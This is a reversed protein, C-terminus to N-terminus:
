ILVNFCDSFFFGFRGNRKVCCVQVWHDTGSCCGQVAARWGRWGRDGFVYFRRGLLLSCRDVVTVNRMYTRVSIVAKTKFCVFLTRWIDFFFSRVRDRCAEIDVVFTNHNMNIANGLKLSFHSQWQFITSHQKWNLFAAVLPLFLWPCAEMRCRNYLSLSFSIILRKRVFPCMQSILPWCPPSFFTCLFGTGFGWFEPVRNLNNHEVGNVRGPVRRVSTVDFM